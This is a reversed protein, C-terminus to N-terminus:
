REDTEGSKTQFASNCGSNGYLPVAGAKGIQIQSANDRARQKQTISRKGIHYGIPGSLVAGLVVGIITSGIGEFIVAMDFM